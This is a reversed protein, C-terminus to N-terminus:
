QDTVKKTLVPNLAEGTARKSDSPARPPPSSVIPFGTAGHPFSSPTSAVPTLGLYASLGVVAQQLDVLVQMLEVTPVFMTM